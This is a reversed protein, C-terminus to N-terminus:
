YLGILLTATTNTAMVRRARIPIMSGAPLNSFTVTQGGQTLVALNGAGGVYIARTVYDLETSDGPTVAFANEPPGSLSRADGLNRDIAM